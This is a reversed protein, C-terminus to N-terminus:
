KPETGKDYWIWSQELPTGISRLLLDVEPYRWEKIPKPEKQAVGKPVYVGSNKEYNVELDGLSYGVTKATSSVLENMLDPDVAFAGAVLSLARKLQTPITGAAIEDGNNTFNKTRPWRLPQNTVLANGYYRYFLELYMMAGLLTAEKGPDDLDAWALSQEPTMYSPADAVALYSNAAANTGSGTEVTITM